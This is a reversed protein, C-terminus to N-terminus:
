IRLAKTKRYKKLIKEIKKVLNNLEYQKNYLLYCLFRFIKFKKRLFSFKEFTKPSKNTSLTLVIEIKFLM